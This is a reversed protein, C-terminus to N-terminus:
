SSMHSVRIDVERRSRTAVAVQHEKSSTEPLFFQWDDANEQMSPEFTIRPSQLDDLCFAFQDLPLSLGMGRAKIYAEKLTWFRFFTAGLQESPITELFAIEAPAFYRQALDLNVKRNLNEVDIGVDFDRALVCVVLGDTHSLNFHIHSDAPGNALVPKGLDNARFVWDQPPGGFYLSLARRVLVKGLLYQRRDKEQVFRGYREGESTALFQLDRAALRELPEESNWTYYVHVTREPLPLLYGM